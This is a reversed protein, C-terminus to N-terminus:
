LANPRSALCEACIPSRDKEEPKPAWDKITKSSAPSRGEGSLISIKGMWPNRVKPVGRERQTLPSRGFLCLQNLLFLFNPAPLNHSCSLLPPGLRSPSPSPHPHQFVPNRSERHVRGRSVRLSTSYAPRPSERLVWRPEPPHEWQCCNWKPYTLTVWIVLLIRPHTLKTM